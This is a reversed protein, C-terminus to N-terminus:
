LSLEIYVLYGALALGLLATLIGILDVLFGAPEFLGFELQHSTRHYGFKRLQPRKKANKVQNKNNLRTNEDARESFVTSHLGLTKGGGGCKQCDATSINRRLLL